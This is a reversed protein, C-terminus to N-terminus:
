SMGIIRKYKVLRKEDTKDLRCGISELDRQYRTLILLNERAWVGEAHSGKVVRPRHRLAPRTVTNSNDKNSFFLVVKTIRKGLKSKHDPIATLALDSLQNVQEFSKTNKLLESISKYNVAFLANLRELDLTISWGGNKDQSKNANAHMRLLLYLRRPVLPLSDLIKADYVTFCETLLLMHKAISPTLVVDIKHASYLKKQDTTTLVNRSTFREFDHTTHVDHDRRRIYFKASEIVSIVSISSSTYSMINVDSVHRYNLLAIADQTFEQYGHTKNSLTTKIYDSANITLTRYKEDISTGGSKFFANVYDDDNILDMPYPDLHRVIYELLRWVRKSKVTSLLNLLNNDIRYNQEYMGNYHKLKFYNLQAKKNENDMSLSYRNLYILYVDFSVNNLWYCLILKYLQFCVYNRDIVM